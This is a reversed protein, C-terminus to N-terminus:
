ANRKARETANFLRNITFYDEATLYGYDFAEAPKMLKGNRFIYATPLDDWFGQASFAICGQFTGLYTGTSLVWDPLGAALLDEESYPCEELPPLGDTSNLDLAVLDSQAFLLEEFASYRQHVKKAKVYNLDLEWPNIWEGDKYGYCTADLASASFKLPAIWVSGDKKVPDGYGGRLSFLLTYGDMTGLYVYGFHRTVPNDWNFWKIDYGYEERYAREIEAIQADTLPTVDEMEPFKPPYDVDPAVAVPIKATGCATLAGLLLICSLLISVKKKM